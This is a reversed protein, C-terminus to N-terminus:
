SNIQLLLLCILLIIFIIRANNKQIGDFGELINTISYM